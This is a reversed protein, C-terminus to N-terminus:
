VRELYENTRTDVKIHDGEKIFLPVKLTLGTELTAEKMVNTVADRKQGPGVAVVKLVVAVPLDVNIPHGEFFQLRYEQGERLYWKMDGLKDEPIAIQEFTKSDMFYYEPGSAYTYQMKKEEFDPEEFNEGASFTKEQVAGTKVNKLKTRVFARRQATRAHQFEVISWVEGELKIKLGKRFGETSIM